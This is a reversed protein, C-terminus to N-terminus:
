GANQAARNNRLCSGHRGFLDPQFCQEAFKLVNLISKETEEIAINHM